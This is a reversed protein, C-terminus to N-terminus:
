TASFTVPKKLMFCSGPMLLSAIPPVRCQFCLLFHYVHYFSTVTVYYTDFSHSQSDSANPRPLWESQTKRHQFYNSRWTLRYNEAMIELLIFPLTASPGNWSREKLNWKAVRSLQIFSSYEAKTPSSKETTFELFHM